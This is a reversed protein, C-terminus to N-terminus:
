TKTRQQLCPLITGDSRHVDYRKCFIDTNVGQQQAEGRKGMSRVHQRSGKMHVKLIEDSKPFHKNVNKISVAPWFAFFGACIANLLTTKTPYGCCCTIISHSKPHFPTQLCQPCLKSPHPLQHHNHWHPENSHWHSTHAMVQHAQGM